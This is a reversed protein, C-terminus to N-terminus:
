NNEPLWGTFNQKQATTPNEVAVLQYRSPRPKGLTVPLTRLEDQHFISLNITEGVQYDKLRDSLQDAKVRLSNIAL